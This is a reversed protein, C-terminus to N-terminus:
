VTIRTIPSAARLLATPIRTPASGASRETSRATEAGAVAGSLGDASRRPATGVAARVGASNLAARLRRAVADHRGCELLLLAFRDGGIRAVVDHRRTIMRLASATVRLTEDGAARGIEQNIRDLGDLDVIAVCAPLGARACRAEEAELLYEWGRRDYLGTVPDVLSTALSREARRAADAARTETVLITGLLQALLQVTPLLRSADESIPHPHFGCLTGFLTGDENYIPAGVYGGIGLEAVMPLQRWADHDCEAWPANTAQGSVFAHSPTDEWRRTEGPNIRIRGRRTATLIVNWMGGEVRAIAWLDFATTGRLHSLVSAAAVDFDQPPPLHRM